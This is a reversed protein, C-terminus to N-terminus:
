SISFQFHSDAHNITTLKSEIQWLNIFRDHLRQVNDIQQVNDIRMCVNVFVTKHHEDDYTTIKINKQIEIRVPILYTRHAHM